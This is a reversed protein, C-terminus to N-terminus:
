STDYAYGTKRSENLNDIDAILAVEELFGSLTPKEGKEQCGTEYSVIKNIFEDINEQRAEIEEATESEALSEIYRTDELVTEALEKLSM